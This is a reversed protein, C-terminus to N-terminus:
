ADMTLMVEGDKQGEDVRRHAAAVADLSLTRDISPVLAGDAAWALLAELDDVTEQAPSAFVQIGRQWGVLPASLVLGLPATLALLRGGPRLWAEAQPLSVRDAVDVILDFREGATVPPGDLTNRLHHAGLAILAAARQGQPDRCAAVVEAGQLRGLQVAARGVSGGAGVVLVREGAKLAARRYFHRLTLGGFPLAAACVADVAPPRAALVGDARLCVAEAHAGQRMGTSAVVADGERWRHVGAGVADVVGSLVMGLVPQRPRTLGFALRGLLRFGPPMRQARVRADGATVPTAQVLVRVEGAAPRPLPREEIQVVEPPGYRRAAAVRM